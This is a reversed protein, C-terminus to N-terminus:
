GAIDLGKEIVERFVIESWSEMRGVLKAKIHDATRFVPNRLPSDDMFGSVPEVQVAFAAGLHVSGVANSDDNIVGLPRFGFPSRGSLYVGPLEEEFERRAANSPRGDRNNVHGGVGLSWLGALRDEGEGKQGRQYTLYYKEDNHSFWVLAYTAIHKLDARHEVLDRRPYLVWGDSVLRDIFRPDPIFGVPSLTGLVCRPFTMVYETQSM